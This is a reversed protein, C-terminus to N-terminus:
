SLTGLLPVAWWQVGSTHLGSPTKLQVRLERPTFTFLGPWCGAYVNLVGLFDESFSFPKRLLCHPNALSQLFTHELM